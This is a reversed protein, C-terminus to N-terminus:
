NATFLATTAVALGGAILALGVPLVLRAGWTTTKEAVMVGTLLLMKVMDNQTTHCASGLPPVRPRRV